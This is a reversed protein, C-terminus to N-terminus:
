LSRRNHRQTLADAWRCNEPTYDGYPDIRDLTTQPPREGMDQLFKEFSLWRPSVKIGRGGYFPWKDSKPNLCRKKMAQWSNYTRSQTGDRAHGHVLSREGSDSQRCGCGKYKNINWIRDIITGGCGCKALWLVDGNAGRDVPRLITLQGVSVGSHDHAQAALDIRPLDVDDLRKAKGHFNM